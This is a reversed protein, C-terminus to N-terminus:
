PQRPRAPPLDQMVLTAFHKTYDERGGENLHTSTSFLERPSSARSNLIVGELGIRGLVARTTAHHLEDDSGSGETAPMLALMLQRYNRGKLRTGFVELADSFAPRIHYTVRETGRLVPHPDVLSGNHDLIYNRMTSERGYYVGAWGSLPPDALPGLSKRLSARVEAVLRPLRGIPPNEKPALSEWARVAGTELSSPHLILVITTARNGRAFYRELLNAYGIPGAFGNTCLSEVSRDIINALLQPDIGMLCSSDGVLLLDVDGLRGARITQERIVPTDTIEGEAGDGVAQFWISVAVLAIVAVLCVAAVLLKTGVRRLVDSGNLFSTEPQPDPM